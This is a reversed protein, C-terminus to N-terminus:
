VLQDGGDTQTNFLHESPIKLSFRLHDPKEGLLATVDGGNGTVMANCRSALWCLADLPKVTHAM